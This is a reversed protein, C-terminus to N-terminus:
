CEQPIVAERKPSHAQKTGLNALKTVAERVDAECVIEIRLCVRETRYGTLRMAM